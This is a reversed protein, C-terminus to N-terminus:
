IKAETKHTNQADTFPCCLTNIKMCFPKIKSEPQEQQEIATKM